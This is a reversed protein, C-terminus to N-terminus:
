ESDNRYVFDIIIDVMGTEYLIEVFFAKHRICM